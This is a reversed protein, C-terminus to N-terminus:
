VEFGEIVDEQVDAGRPHPQTDLARRPPVSDNMRSCVIMTVFLGLLLLGIGLAILWVCQGEERDIRTWV